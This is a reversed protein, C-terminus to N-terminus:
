EKKAVTIGISTALHTKGVGSSGPFVINEKRGTELNYLVEFYM